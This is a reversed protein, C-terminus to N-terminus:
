KAKLIVQIHARLIALDFPKIIYDDAGLSFGKLKDPVSKMDGTMMMVSIDKLRPDSKVKECVETGLMGPLNLDLLILDPRLELARQYGMDGRSERFVEYQSSELFLFLMNMLAVDDEIVLIRKKNQKLFETDM